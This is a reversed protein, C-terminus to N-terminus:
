IRKILYFIENPISFTEFELKNRILINEFWKRKPHNMSKGSLKKTPFSILIYKSPLSLIIKESLKHKKDIVDLVKFLICLDTKPLNILPKRLDLVFTKGNIKNEKFFQEILFLEDEKIDSAFYILDHSALAIPNLGCGLDLVSKIKLEQIKSKILPYFGLRESTSSHTNLLEKLNNKKLLKPRDKFSKQYQGSLFRLEARVEKIILRSDQKALKNPSIRHKELYDMLCEKVLQGSLSSLEKKEKIGKILYLSNNYPNRNKKEIRQRSLQLCILCLYYLQGYFL